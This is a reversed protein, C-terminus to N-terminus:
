NKRVIQRMKTARAEEEEKCRMMTSPVVMLQLLLLEECGQGLKCTHGDLMFFFLNLPVAKSKSELAAAASVFNLFSLEVVLSLFLLLLGPASRPVVIVVLLSSKLLVRTARKDIGNNCCQAIIKRNVKKGLIALPAIQETVLPEAVFSWVHM